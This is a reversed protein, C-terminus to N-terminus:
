VLFINRIRCSCFHWPRGCGFTLGGVDNEIKDADDDVEVNDDDGNGEASDGNVGVDLGTVKSGDGNQWEDGGKVFVKDEIKLSLEAERKAVMYYCWKLFLRM